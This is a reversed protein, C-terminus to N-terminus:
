IEEQTEAQVHDTHAIRACVSGVVRGFDMFINYGDIDYYTFNEWSPDCRFFAARRRPFNWRRISHRAGRRDSCCSQHVLQSLISHDALLHRLQAPERASRPHYSGLQCCTPPLIQHHHPARSTPLSSLLPLRRNRLLQLSLHALPLFPIPFRLTDIPVTFRSNCVSAFQKHNLFTILLM